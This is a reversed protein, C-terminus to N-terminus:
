HTWQISRGDTQWAPLPLCTRSLCSLGHTVYCLPALDLDHSPAPIPTRPRCLARQVVLCLPPPPPSVSVSLLPPLHHSRPCAHSCRPYSCPSLPPPHTQTDRVAAPCCCGVFWTSVLVFFPGAWEAGGWGSGCLGIAVHWAGCLVEWPAHRAPRALADACVRSRGRHPPAQARHLGRGQVRRYRPHPIPLPTTSSCRTLCSM